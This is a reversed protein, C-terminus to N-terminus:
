SQKEGPRSTIRTRASPHHKKAETPDHLRTTPTPPTQQLRGIDWLKTHSNCNSDVFGLTKALVEPVVRTGWLGKKQNSQRIMDAFFPLVTRRVPQICFQALHLPSQLRLFAVVMALVQSYAREVIRISTSIQIYVGLEWYQVMFDAFLFGKRLQNYLRTSM